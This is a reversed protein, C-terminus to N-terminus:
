TAAQMRLVAERLQAIVAPSSQVTPTVHGEAHELVIRSRPSWLEVGAKQRDYLIDKPGGLVHVSPTELLGNQLLPLVRPDRPPTGSNFLVVGRWREGGLDGREAMATLITALVSGQSFGMLLDYPGSEALIRKASDLSRQLGVYEVTGNPREMANWWEFYPGKPWRKAVADLPPGTAENAGDAFTWDWSRDAFASLVDAMLERLM